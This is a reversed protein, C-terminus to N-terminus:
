KVLFEKKGLVKPGLSKKSGFYKSGFKIQDFNKPVLLNKQGLITKFLM